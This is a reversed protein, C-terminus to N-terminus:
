LVAKNSAGNKAQYLRDECVGGLEAPQTMGPTATAIGISVAVPIREGGFLFEHTEVVGRLKEAFLVIQEPENESAAVALQQGAYRACCDERRVHKRLLAALERLVFDGGLHGYCDNIGKFHDIDLLVLSFPRGYRQARALEREMHGFLYRRTYLQTLPDVVSTKYIEEHYLAEVDGGYLFKFIVPGIQVHDGTRLEVEEHKALERDNLFTGNTSGLDRLIVRGATNVFACHNRSVADLRLVVDSDYERGVRLTHRELAIKRGLGPGFIQVLCSESNGTGEDAGDGDVAPLHQIDTVSPDDDPSM